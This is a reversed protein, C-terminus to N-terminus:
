EGGTPPELSIIIRGCSECYNLKDSKRVENVFQPPLSNFCGGCAGRQVTVVAVGQKARALQDFRTAVNPPLQAALAACAAKVEDREAKLGAEKESLEKARADSVGRAKTVREKAEAIRGDIATEADFMELVQTELASKQEKLFNAERKAADLEVNSKAKGQTVLNDRIKGEIGEIEKEVGRRKLILAQKEAEIAKQENERIAQDGRAQSLRQPMRTLDDEISKLDTTKTQLEWLLRVDISL